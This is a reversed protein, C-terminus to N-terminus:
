TIYSYGTLHPRLSPTGWVKNVLRLGHSSGIAGIESAFDQLRNFPIAEFLLLGTLEEVNTAIRNM